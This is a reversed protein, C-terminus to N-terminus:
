GEKLVWRVAEMLDNKIFDPKYEWDKIEDPNEKGTLLLITKCGARKGAIVDLKSDGIFYTDKFDIDLGKTSKEILGINPKRCNCNEEPLHICYNVSMIRGGASEIEKLMNKTIDDLDKKSFLGKSVGAQNSIVIIEYGNQTLLKIADIAGPLFQFEKWSKIYDGKGPDKNIVGDRDLFVVKPRKRM